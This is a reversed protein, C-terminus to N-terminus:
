PLAAPAIPLVVALESRGGRTGTGAFAEGGLFAASLGVVYLGFGRSYRAGQLSKARCQFDRTFLATRYPEDVATGSDSVEFRVNKGDALVRLAVDGGGTTYAASAVLLNKLVLSAYQLEWECIIDPVDGEIRLTVESQSMLGHCTKLTSDVFQRLPIPSTEVHEGAELRAIAVFNDVLHLLVGIAFVSDDVAGRTDEDAEAMVAQLYSLNASLASIPNRFDHAFMKTIASQVDFGDAANEDRPPM